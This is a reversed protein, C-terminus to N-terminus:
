TKKKFEWDNIPGVFLLLLPPITKLCVGNILEFLVFGPSEDTLLPNLPLYLCSIYKIIGLIVM